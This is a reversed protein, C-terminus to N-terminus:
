SLRWNESLWKAVGDNENSLAIYDALKKLEPVANGVAIKFDSEGFMAMDNFNDGFCVVKDFGYSNRLFKIGDAKSATASFIELFYKQTYTDQYFAYNVGKLQSIADKVPSLKEYEGTITYYITKEDAVNTLDKCQVFPKNYNNKRSEAFSQMIQSTIETFYATLINKDIRYMFCKLDNEKFIKIIEASIELSIYENNIYSNNKPNYISVGNMLVYPINLNLLSTIPKASYISRATAFTFYMGNDILSNITNITNESLKGNNNLLTGDLDTIYLIKIFFDGGSLM